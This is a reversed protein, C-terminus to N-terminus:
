TDASRPLLDGQTDDAYVGTTDQKPEESLNDCRWVAEETRGQQLHIDAIEKLSHGTNILQTARGHRLSHPGYHRLQVGHAKLADSVMRYVNGNSLKKHPARRGIFLYECRVDNFRVEKIYRIIADGVAPLLPITQPKCGKARRLYIQEKRWDIDKIKMGTVESCRMGYVSLLLLMAYDRVVTGKGARREELIEQVVDWPVFSPIDENKYTRPAKLSLVLSTSNWGKMQGYKFFNRLVSCTGSITRRCCGDETRRKQLYTDLMQPTISAMCAPSVSKMLGKLMSYRGDVTSQSYGKENKLWHLYEMVHEKLPFVDVPHVYQNLSILWDRVHSLFHKRAYKGDSSKLSSKELGAWTGAASRLEDETVINGNELHLLDIAHLHYSAIQRLTGVSAGMSEWKELHSSREDLLPYTLYRLRHHKREFLRNLILSSDCYLDDLMGIHYLWSFAVNMFKAVSSPSHRRKMPHNKITDSWLEAADKIEQVTIKRPQGDRMQLMNVILLLYDVTSLLSSRVIGKQAMIELYNEREKLWPADLHRQLYWKRKIIMELM